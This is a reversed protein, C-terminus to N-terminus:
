LLSTVKTLRQAGIVALVSVFLLMSALANIEPTVGFRVMSYIAIPLTPTTPAATFFAIVFEDLSLTFSLLAGAVIGPALQPLTVRLFTRVAGAGLDRSAEELSPDLNALRALVIATVFAMAFTTHAIIVSHLGLTVGLLSFLSLLGIALLIDPLLAPAIAFARILGGRTFRQIGVAMLTGLATALVTVSAAVILTNRLGEMIAPDRFVEPYWDLTFGRWVFLNESDNFSMIVVIVIPVYLFVYTLWFPVAILRSRRAGTRKTVAADAM